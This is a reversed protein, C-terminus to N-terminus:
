QRNNNLIDRFDPNNFIIFYNIEIMKKGIKKKKKYFPLINFKFM